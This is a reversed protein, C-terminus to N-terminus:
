GLAPAIVVRFGFYDFRLDPRSDNRCACRVYWQNAYFSGGRLVRMGSASEDERGDDAKYPYPQYFTHCWERVNGAMDAVGYPSDGQPSYAGVLTTKGKGRGYSNCKNKDFDNGWPWENGHEGRAAKEWEAETPLRLLLKQSPFGAKALTNLWKCCEMADQWSVQVVPHTAKKKLSTKPGQPHQWDFGKVYADRETSWGGEKEATTIYQTAEIFAAFQDNTVLYRAMWYDYPIEVSHQPKEDDSALRNDSKSGMLFKGAPIRVFELGGLNRHNNPNSLWIEGPLMPKNSSRTTNAAPASAEVAPKIDQISAGSQIITAHEINITTQTIKDRGVIDSGVTVNNADVNIGGSVNSVVSSSPSAPQPTPSSPMSTIGGGMSDARTLLAKLLRAYGNPDFYNVWQWRSLREPVDCEELKLPILFITAEPQEDAVDLAFKIEKQVYGAKNISGKSLCVIVVDSNRVAHPIERQWDQGPLLDEEDLWPEFGDARLRQYLERVAPKDSSSHCLFV